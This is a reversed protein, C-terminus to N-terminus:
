SSFLDGYLFQHEHDKFLFCSYMINDRWFSATKQFLQWNDKKLTVTYKYYNDSIIVLNSFFETNSLRGFTCLSQNPSEVWIQELWKWPLKPITGLRGFLCKLQWRREVGKDPYWWAAISEQLRFHRSILSNSQDVFRSHRKALPLLHVGTWCSAWSVWPVNRSISIADYNFNRM